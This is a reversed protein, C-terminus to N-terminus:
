VIVSKIRNELDQKFDPLKDEEWMIRNRHALDFHIGEKQVRIKRGNSDKLEKVIEKGYLLYDQECWDKRCTYIVPLGLGYAFGAEFYVGGRYGTLDCVMFRSRRIQAIIEDNIDNIHEVNDIKIAKFRPETAGEEKYEIAPKIAKKYIPNTEDSFWMAVFCQRSDINKIQFERLRSYGKATISLSSHPNEKDRANILGDEWLLKLVSVLEPQSICHYYIYDEDLNITLADAIHPSKADINLLVKDMLEIPPLQGQELFQAIDKLSLPGVFGKQSMKDWADRIQIAIISKQKKSYQMLAFDDNTGQDLIYIGCVPCHVLLKYGSFKSDANHNPSFICNKGM